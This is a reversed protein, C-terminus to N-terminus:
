QALTDSMPIIASSGMLRVVRVLNLAERGRECRSDTNQRVSRNQRGGDTYRYGQQAWKCATGLIAIETGGGLLM